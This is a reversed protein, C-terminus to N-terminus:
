EPLTPMFCWIAWAVVSMAAVLLVSLAGQHVNRGLIARVAVPLITVAGLITPEILNSMTKGSEDYALLAFWVTYPIVLLSYDWKNWQVRKRAVYWIPVAPLLPLVYWLWLFLFFLLSKVCYVLV